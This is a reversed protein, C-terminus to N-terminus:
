NRTMPLRASADAVPEGNPIYFSSRIDKEYFDSEYRTKIIAVRVGDVGLQIGAYLNKGAIDRVVENVAWGSAVYKLKGYRSRAIELCQVADDPKHIDNYALGLVEYAVASWYPSQARLVPLARGILKISEESKDVARLTGALKLFHVAQTLSRAPQALVSIPLALLLFLWPRFRIRTVQNM